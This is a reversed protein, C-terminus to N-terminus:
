EHNSFYRKNQYEIEPYNAKVHEETKASIDTMFDIWHDDTISYEDYFERMSHNMIMEVSKEESENPNLVILHDKVEQDWVKYVEDMARLQELQHDNLQLAEESQFEDNLLDEFYLSMDIGLDVPTEPVDEHSLRELDYIAIQSYNSLNQFIRGSASQLYTADEYTLKETDLTRNLVYNSKLVSYHLNGFDTALEKSMYETYKQKDLYQYVNLSALLVIIAVIITYKVNIKKLKGM